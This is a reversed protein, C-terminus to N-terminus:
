FVYDKMIRNLLFDMGALMATFFLMVVLIVMSANFTEGWSPWTCKRMETESEILMDAVNPRGLVRALSLLCLTTFALTIILSWTLPVGLVPLNGGSLDQVLLGDGGDGRFSMLFFYLTYCGFCVLSGLLVFATTRAYSGQDPKYKSMEVRENTDGGM